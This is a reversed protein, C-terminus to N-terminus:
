PIHLRVTDVREKLPFVVCIDYDPEGMYVGMDDLGKSMSKKSIWHLEKSSISVQAEMQSDEIDNMPHSAIELKQNLDEKSTDIPEGEIPLYSEDGGIQQKQM